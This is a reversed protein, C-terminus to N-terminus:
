ADAAKTRGMEATIDDLETALGDADWRALPRGALERRDQGQLMDLVGYMIGALEHLEAMDANFAATDAAFEAPTM